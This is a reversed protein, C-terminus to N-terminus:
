KGLVEGIQPKFKEIFDKADGIMFSGFQFTKIYLIGNGTAIGLKNKVCCIKGPELKSKKNSFEASYIKLFIGRFNTMASIFPNLARIFREIYEADKEWDIFNKMNKVEISPAKKFDGEPQPNSIITNNLEYQKLFFAVYDASLYNLKNFLTGMTETKDISVKKQAIINGTDFNEDMFHLTIGTEKENNILVHSYPNAGRYEPLMSPHCNVFGGNVCKLLEPPLKKNYSCVVAIDANVQRVKHLFDLEDLRNEYTLLLIHMSKTISCMLEYTEDSKHPPVVGVINFGEMVLKTLCVIGMDPMGIFLIRKKNKKNLVM